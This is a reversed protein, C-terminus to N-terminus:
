VCIIIRLHEPVFRLHPPLIPQRMRRTQPTILRVLQKHTNVDFERSRSLDILKFENAFAQCGIHVGLEALGGRGRGSDRGAGKGSPYVSVVFRWVVRVGCADSAETVDRKKMCARRKPHKSNPRQKM